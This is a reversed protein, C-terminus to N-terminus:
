PRYPSRTAFVGIKQTRGRPPLVMPNWHDNHHFIFLVWIRECTELGTLAQEFNSGPLLEIVGSAHHEDPQRGAEYPEVQSSKFYGIPSIAYDPMVENGDNQFVTKGM